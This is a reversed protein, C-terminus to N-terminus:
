YKARLVREAVRGIDKAQEVLKDADEETGGTARALAKSTDIARKCDAM